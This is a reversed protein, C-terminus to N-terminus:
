NANPVTENPQALCVRNRGEAKAQYLARDVRTILMDVSEDGVEIAGTGISVTIQLDEGSQWPFRHKEVAKRIREATQVAQEQDTTDLIVLFEEGGYRGATDLSRLIAGLGNALGVLVSDGAQHGYTDNVRKFFDIDLILVGFSTGHRRYGDMQLELEAM